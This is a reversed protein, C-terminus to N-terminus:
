GAYSDIVGNAIFTLREERERERGRQRERKEKRERGSAFLILAVSACLSKNGHICLICKFRM